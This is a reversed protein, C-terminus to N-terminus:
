EFRSDANRAQPRFDQERDDSRLADTGIHAHIANDGRAHVANVLGARQMVATKGDIEAAAIEARAVRILGDRVDLLAEARVVVYYKFVIVDMDLEVLLLRQGSLAGCHQM